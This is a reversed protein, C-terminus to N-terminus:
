AAAEADRLVGEGHLQPLPTPDRLAEQFEDVSGRKYFRHSREKKLWSRMAEAPDKGECLAVVAIGVLDDHTDDWLTTRRDPKRIEVALARAKRLISSEALCGHDAAERLRRQRLREARRRYEETRDGRGKEAKRRRSREAERKRYEPNAARYKRYYEASVKGGM